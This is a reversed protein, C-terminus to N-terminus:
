GPSGGGATRGDGIGPRGGVWRASAVCVTYAALGAIMPTVAFHYRDQIVIIAHVAATALWVYILPHLAAGLVGRRRCLMVAGMGAAALVTLWFAQGALKIATVLPGPAVRALGESNWIVGITEREHFRVFKVATRKAFAVPKEAIYARARRGLERNLGAEDLGDVAPAPQYFGTTDPNNGMWLNVGGNTSMAVFTGFVRSNRVSWPVFLVVMVLGLGAATAFTRARHPGRLFDVGAMLIPIIAITPRVYCAAAFLAGATVARLVPSRDLRLWALMAGLSLATFPLESALLTTFEVHMPWLAVLWGAVIGARRDLVRVVLAITLGIVTAGLAVNLVVIPTYSLGFVRYVAGYIFATGPPWHATPPGAPDFTYGHGMAVNRALIDYARADSVPSVPVWVGWAVRLLLGVAIVVRPDAFVRLLASWGMRRSEQENM